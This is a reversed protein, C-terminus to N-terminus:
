LMAANCRALGVTSAGLGLRLWGLGRCFQDYLFMPLLLVSSIRVFRECHLSRAAVVVLVLQPIMCFHMTCKAWRVAM